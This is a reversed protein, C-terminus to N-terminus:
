MSMPQDHIECSCQNTMTPYTISQIHMNFLIHKQKFSIDFMTERGAIGVVDECCMQTKEKNQFPEQLIYLYGDKIM